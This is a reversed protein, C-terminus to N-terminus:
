NRIYIDRGQSTNAWNPNSNCIMFLRLNGPRKGYITTRGVGNKISVQFGNVSCMGSYKKPGSILVTFNKGVIASGPATFSIKPIPLAVSVFNFLKDRYKIRVAVETPLSISRSYAWQADTTLVYSEYSTSSWKTSGKARSKIEVEYPVWMELEEPYDGGTIQPRVECLYGNASCEFTFGDVRFLNELEPDLNISVQLELAGDGNASQSVELPYQANFIPRTPTFTLTYSNTSRSTVEVAYGEESSQNPNGNLYLDGSTEGSSIIQFDVSQVRNIRVERMDSVTSLNSTALAPAFESFTTGIFILVIFLSFKRMTSVTVRQAM